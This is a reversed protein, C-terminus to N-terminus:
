IIKGHVKRKVMYIMFKMFNKGFDKFKEKTDMYLDGIFLIHLQRYVSLLFTSKIDVKVQALPQLKLLIRQVIEM